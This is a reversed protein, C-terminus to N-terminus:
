QKAETQWRCIDCQEKCITDKYDNQKNNCYFSKVVVPITLQKKHYIKGIEEFLEMHEDLMYGCGWNYLLPRIDEKELKKM